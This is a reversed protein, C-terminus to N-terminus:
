KVGSFFLHGSREGVFTGAKAWSPPQPMAAAYYHTPREKFQPRIVDRLLGDAIWECEALVPDAWTQGNEIRVIIAKLAVLNPDTANWCSFQKPATCVAEYTGGWRGSTFRNRIVDAVALRGATSGSRNEGWITLAIWHKDTV